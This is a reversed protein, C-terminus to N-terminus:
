TDFEFLKGFRFCAPERANQTKFHYLQLEIKKKFIFPFAFHLHHPLGRLHFACALNTETGALRSFATALNKCGTTCLATLAQRLDSSLRHGRPEGARFVFRNEIRPTDEPPTEHGCPHHAMGVGASFGANDNGFFAEVIRHEPMTYLMSYHEPPASM